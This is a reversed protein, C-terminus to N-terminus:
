FWGRRGGFINTAVGPLFDNWLSIRQSYVRRRVEPRPSVNLYQQDAPDYRPWSVSAPSPNGTKAFQTLAERFVGTVARSDSTSIDPKPQFYSQKTGNVQDFLYLLDWAHPTAMQPLSRDLPQPYHDFLYHYAPTSPSTRTLRNLFDVTPFVFNVDTNVHKM